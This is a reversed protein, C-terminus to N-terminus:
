RPRAAEDLFRQQEAPDPLKQALMAYLHAEDVASQAAKKTLVAAIPGVYRALLLSARQTVEDTVPRGSQIGSVAGVSGTTTGTGRKRAPGTPRADGELFRRREEPTRLQNALLEYLQQRNATNAAANRVLVKAMPGVIPMLQREVEALQEQSWAALSAAARAPDTRGVRPPM